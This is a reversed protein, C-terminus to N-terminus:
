YLATLLLLNLIRVYIARTSPVRSNKNRALHASPLSADSDDRWLAAHIQVVNRLYTSLSLPQSDSLGMVEGRNWAELQGHLRVVPPYAGQLSLFSAFFNLSASDFILKLKQIQNMYDKAESQTASPEDHSAEFAICSCM